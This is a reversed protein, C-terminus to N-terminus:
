QLDANTGSAATLPRASAARGVGLAVCFAFAGATEVAALECDDTAVVNASGGTAREM